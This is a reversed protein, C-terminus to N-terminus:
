SKGREVSLLECIKVIGLILIAPGMLFSVLRLLASFILRLPFTRSAFGVTFALGLYLFPRELVAARFENLREELRRQIQMETTQERQQQSQLIGTQSTEM